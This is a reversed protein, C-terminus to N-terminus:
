CRWQSLGGDPFGADIYLIGRKRFFGFDSTAAGKDAAARVDELTKDKGKLEQASM